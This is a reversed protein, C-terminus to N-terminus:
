TMPKSEHWNFFCRPCQRARRTRCLAGCKPCLNLCAMGHEALVRAVVQERFVEACDEVSVGLPPLTARRYNRQLFASEGKSIPQDTRYKLFFYWLAREDETFLDDREGLLYEAIEAPGLDPM